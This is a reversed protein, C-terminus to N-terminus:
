KRHTWHRVTRSSGLYLEQLTVEIDMPIDPKRKDTNGGGRRGGGFGFFDGFGGGGGGGDPKLGDEGYM